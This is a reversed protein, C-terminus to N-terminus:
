FLDDGDEWWDISHGDAAVRGLRAGRAEWWALYDALNLYSLPGQGQDSSSRGPDFMPSSFALAPDRALVERKDLVPLGPILEPPPNALLDEPGRHGYQRQRGNPMASDILHGTLTFSLLVPRVVPASPM